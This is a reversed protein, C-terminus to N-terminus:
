WRGSHIRSMRRPPAGASSPPRAPQASSTMAVIPSNRTPSSTSNSLTKGGTGDSTTSGSAPNTALWPAKESTPAM